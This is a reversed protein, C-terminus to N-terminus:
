RIFEYLTRPGRDSRVLFAWCDCSTQSLEKVTDTGTRFAFDFEMAEQFSRLEVHIKIVQFYSM